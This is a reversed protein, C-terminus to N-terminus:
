DSWGQHDFYVPYTRLTKVIVPLGQDSLPDSALHDTATLLDGILIHLVADARPELKCNEVIYAVQENIYTSLIEANTNTLSQDHYAAVSKMVENNINQMSNRLPTDTQWKNGHDLSLVSVTHGEDGHSHQDAAQTAVPLITASILLCSASASSLLAKVLSNM